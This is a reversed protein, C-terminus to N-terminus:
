INEDIKRLLYITEMAFRGHMFGFQKKTVRM